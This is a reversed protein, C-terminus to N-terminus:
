PKPAPKLTTTPQRQNTARLKPVSPCGRYNAHHEGGCNACTQKNKTINPATRLATHDEVTYVSKTRIVTSRTTISDKAGTVSHHTPQHETEMRVVIGACKTVRLIYEKNQQDVDVLYLPLSQKNIRTRM